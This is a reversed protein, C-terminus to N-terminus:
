PELLILSGFNRSLRYIFTALNDAGVVLWWYGERSIGPVWKEELSLPSWNWLSAPIVKKNKARCGGTSWPRRMWSTQLNCVVVCWLRYSEEPRAILKDCLGRGSLVCCECCVFMRPGPPIRVWLRLLRAATYRCAPLILDMFFGIVRDPVSGAVKRSTACHRVWSREVWFLLKIFDLFGDTSSPTVNRVTTLGVATKMEARAVTLLRLSRAWLSSGVHFM